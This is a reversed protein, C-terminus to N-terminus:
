WECGTECHRGRDRLTTYLRARMDSGDVGGAGCPRSPANRCRSKRSKQLPCSTDRMPVHICLTPCDHSTSSSVPDGNWSPSTFVRWNAGM